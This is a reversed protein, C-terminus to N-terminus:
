RGADVYGQNNAIRDVIRESVGFRIRMEKRTSGQKLCKRIEAAQANTLAAKPHNEGRPARSRGKAKTDKNNQDYTGSVLHKPNCCSRNDCTHMLFGTSRRDKPASFDSSGNALAFAVRHACFKTGGIKISGYGTSNTGKLWNWCEDSSGKNVCDWFDVPGSVKGDSYVFGKKPM